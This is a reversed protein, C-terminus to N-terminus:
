LKSKLHINKMQDGFYSMQPTKNQKKIIFTKIYLVRLLVYMFQILHSESGPGLRMFLAPLLELRTGLVEKESDERRNGGTQGVLYVTFKRNIEQLCVDKNKKKKKGKSPFTSAKHPFSNDTTQYFFNATTSSGLDHQERQWKPLLTTGKARVM